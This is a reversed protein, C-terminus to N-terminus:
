KIKGLIEGVIFKFYDEDKQLFEYPKQWIGDIGMSLIETSRGTSSSYEKGMYPHDFKDIKTKENLGYNQNPYISSLLVDTEGVTRRDLFQIAKDNIAPYKIELWHVFEHIVTKVNTADGFYVTNDNPNYWSRDKGIRQYNISDIKSSSVDISNSLGNFFSKPILRNFEELGSEIIPDKTRGDIFQIRQQAPDETYLTKRQEELSWKDLSKKQKKIESFVEVQKQHQKNAEKKKVELLDIEKQDDGNRVANDYERMAAFNTKSTKSLAKQAVIEREVFRENRKYKEKEIEEFAKRFEDLTSPEPTHYTNPKEVPAPKEKKKRKDTIKVKETSGKGIFEEIEEDTMPVPNLWCRCGLHAGPRTIRTGPFPQGIITELGNLLACIPCVKPGDNRTNWGNRITGATRYSEQQAISWIETMESRVILNARYDDSLGGRLFNYADQLTKEGRVYATYEDVLRNRNGNAIATTVLDYYPPAFYDGRTLFNIVSEDVKSWNVTIEIETSKVSVKKNIDTLQIRSFNISNLAITELFSLIFAYVPQFSQEIEYENELLSKNFDLPIDLGRLLMRLKRYGDKYLKNQIKSGVKELDM